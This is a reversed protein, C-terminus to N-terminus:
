RALDKMVNESIQRAEKAFDRDIRTYGPLTPVINVADRLSQAASWLNIPLVFDGIRASKAIEDAALATGLVEVAARIFAARAANFHAASASLNERLVPIALRPWSDLHARHEAAIAEVTRQHKVAVLRAVAADEEAARREAELSARQQELEIARSAPGEGTEAAARAEILADAIAAVRAEIAAAAQIRANASAAAGQAAAARSQIEESQRYWADLAANNTSTAPESKKFISLSM